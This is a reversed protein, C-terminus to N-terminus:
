ASRSSIRTRAARARALLVRADDVREQASDAAGCSRLHQDVNVDTRRAAKEAEAARARLQELREEFCSVREALWEDSARGNPVKRFLRYMTYCGVDYLLTHTPKRSHM